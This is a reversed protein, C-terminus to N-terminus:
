SGTRTGHRLGASRPRRAPRCADVRAPRDGVQRGDVDFLVARCSGTGLDIALLPSMQSRRRRSPATSGAATPSISRAARRPRPREIEAAAMEGGHRLTEYTAGGIHTTIIVNPYRRAAPAARVAPSPSISTSRSVPWAAARRAGDLLAAEDVLTDRATNVFYAGPKMRRSRPRGRHPAPERRDGARPALRRGVSRAADALDVPEAGTPPSRPRTSIRISLSSGCASRRRAPRSGGASRASASSGWRTAPSTTASGDPARTTTTASSAVRRSTACSRPCAAPSCSWSPSRSSRSRMPTRARRRRRGPHRADTAAAVDVNVPGGRACCSWGCTLRRGRPRARTVPAGQVVLVDHSRRPPWAQDRAAWHVGQPRSRVPHAPVWTPSTPRRGRLDGRPRGRARRVRGPLCVVPLVLRRRRPHAVDDAPRGSRRAADPTSPRRTSSRSPTLDIAHGSGSELVFKLMPETDLYYFEITDGIRGGM